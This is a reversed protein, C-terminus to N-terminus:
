LLPQPIARSINGFENYGQGRPRFGGRQYQCDTFYLENDKNKHLYSQQVLMYIAEYNVIFTYLNNVLSFTDGLPNTLGAALEFHGRCAQIINEQLHVINHYTPDVGKQITDLEICLKCFCKTTSLTPNTLIM